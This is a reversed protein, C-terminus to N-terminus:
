AQKLTKAFFIRPFIDDVVASQIFFLAKAHKKRNERLKRNPEVSPELSEVYRGEVIDWLEQSKFMMQMKNSWLHYKEGKFFPVLPQFNQNVGNVAM